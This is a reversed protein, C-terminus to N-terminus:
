PDGGILRAVLERARDATVRGLLRHDISMVPAQSCAGLCTNYKLTVKSDDTDGEGALGLEDQVQELIHPAGVLHCTPGWCVEVLHESPPTFRFNTYFSAVGWVDNISAGAHDAVEEIAEDPLYGLGDQAALLSSLVTVTPRTQSDLARRIRERISENALTLLVARDSALLTVIM